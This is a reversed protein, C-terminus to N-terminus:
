NQPGSYNQCTLTRQGCWTVYIHRNLKKALVLFTWPQM